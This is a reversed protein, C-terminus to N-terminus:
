QGHCKKYKKGSGCPCPDNRGPKSPPPAESTKAEEPEAEGETEFVPALGHLRLREDIAFMVLRTEGPLLHTISDIKRLIGRARGRTTEGPAALAYAFLADDRFDEDNFYKAIKDAQASLRFYGAGRLAQHLIAPDKEDLHGAFNKAFPKYLSRWMAEMAKARATGGEEYLAEIETRVEADEAFGYLGIAAGGREEAPKSTERLVALMAGRISKDEAADALSAWARGRAAADSDSKAMALLAARAKPSVETNFFSYAAEARVEADPSQLLELREPETLVDVDPLAREPYEALVDFPEPQYHPEPADLQELAHSIERELEDEDLGAEADEATVEALMKELPPRAAADGYLGLCFAGDAADFELRDLLLALVRPDRIRLGALLFAIDSGYEEGLEEYLRLLGEVAPQGLPLLAQILNDDIDEPQRRIVDMFFDVAEPHPWHRFLDILLPDLDVHSNRQPERSFALIEPIAAADGRNLISKILRQDVGIWGLSAARLLEGVPIEGYRAPDFAALPWGASAV